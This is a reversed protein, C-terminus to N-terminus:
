SGGRGPCTLIELFLCAGSVMVTIVIIYLLVPIKMSGLNPRLWFFVCASVALTILSGILTWLGPHAIYFFALLYFIHGLLFSVLGFLFMRKQPLALFVDGGLCFALGALILHFYNPIPRGQILVTVIFMMSLATKIVVRIKRNGKKESYLLGSLGTIALLIIMMNLM